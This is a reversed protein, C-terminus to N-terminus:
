SLLDRAAKHPSDPCPDWVPFVHIRRLFHLFKLIEPVETKAKRERPVKNSLYVSEFVAQNSDSLSRCSWPLRRGNVIQVSGNRRVVSPM